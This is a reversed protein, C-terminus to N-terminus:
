SMMVKQLKDSNGVHEFHVDREAMKVFSKKVPKATEKM